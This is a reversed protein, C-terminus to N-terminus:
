RREPQPTCACGVQDECSSVLQSEKKPLTEKPTDRESPIRFERTAVAMGPDPATVQCSM